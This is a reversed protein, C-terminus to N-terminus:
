AQKSEIKKSDKDADDPKPAGRWFPPRGAAKAWSASQLAMRWPMPHVKHALLWTGLFLIAQSIMFGRGAGAIGYKMVLLYTVIVNVVGAFLTIFALKGTASEFFIYNTVMYYMGGFAFGMAIYIVVGSGGRFAKGAIISLITPASLGILLALGSLVLFYLYTYRVIVIEQTQDRQKLREFLWPAYAQNISNTVFGLVMGVQLAVTYIGTEAVGLLKTVIIRDVMSILMGGLTHPILPVGFKLADKVYALSVPFKIWKDRWLSSVAIVMVVFTAIVIASTRGRWGLGIVIVLWVSLGANLASQTIQLGGFKRPQKSVQWLYLRLLIIFQMGSVLVAILLWGQPVETLKELNSRFLFILSFVIVTSVILISLCSAVYCSLNINEQDFYRISVAGQVSLGTFAGLMSVAIGFMAVTGYEAPTLVRTLIPLLLFPIAATLVNSVTYVAAHGIM